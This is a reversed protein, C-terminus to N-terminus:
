FRRTRALCLHSNIYTPIWSLSCCVCIFLSAATFMADDKLQLEVVVLLALFLTFRLIKGLQKGLLSNYSRPEIHVEGMPIYCVEM